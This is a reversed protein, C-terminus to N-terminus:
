EAAWGAFLYLDDGDIDGCKAAWVKEWKETNDWAEEEWDAVCKKCWEDETMDKFHKDIQKFGFGNGVNVTFKVSGERERALLGELEKTRDLYGSTTSITGNYGNSGHQSTAYTVATDYAERM